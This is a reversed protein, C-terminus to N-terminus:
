TKKQCRPGLFVIGSHPYHAELVPEGLLQVKETKSAELVVNKDLNFAQRAKSEPTNGIARSTKAAAMFRKLRLTLSDFAQWKIGSVLLFADSQIQRRAVPPAHVDLGM